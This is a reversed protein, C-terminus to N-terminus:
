KSKNKVRTAKDKSKRKMCDYLKLAESKWSFNNTQRFGSYVLSNRENLSLGNMYLMKSMLSKIDNNKFYIAAEGCVEPLSSSDSCLVPVGCAMAELPPIGFGEYKSPFIFYEANHYVSPLDNDDVFGTFHIKEKVRDNVTKLIEEVGWGKRGALVLDPLNEGDDVLKEYAKILLPINKRPELTSLSLLYNDPLNYKNKLTENSSNGIAFKEHDIGCYILLIKDNPYKLRQVIRSKSFESITVINQCVKMAHKHSIKFYLGSAGNTTEPCDWMCIDHITAISNKKNFLLPMPFALFLFYDANIKNLCNPLVVQNFFLKSHVPLVIMKVNKNSRFEKFLDHITGKFVLIYRANTNKILEYSICAAFREIGSFNDALSTLDIVIKM